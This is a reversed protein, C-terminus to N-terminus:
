KPATKENIGDILGNEILYFYYDDGDIWEAIGNSVGIFDSCGAVFPIGKRYKEIDCIPSFIEKGKWPINTNIVEEFNYETAFEKAIEYNSKEM